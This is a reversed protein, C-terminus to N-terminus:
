KREVVVVVIIIVVVVIVVVWVAHNVEYVVVAVVVEIELVWPNIESVLNQHNELIEEEESV